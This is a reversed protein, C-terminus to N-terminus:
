IEQYKGELNEWNVINKWPSKEGGVLIEQRRFYDEVKHREHVITKRQQLCHDM